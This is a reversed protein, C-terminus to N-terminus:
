KNVNPYNCYVIQKDVDRSNYHKCEHKCNMSGVHILYTGYEVKNPCETSCYTNETEYHIEEPM